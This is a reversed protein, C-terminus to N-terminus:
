DDGLLNAHSLQFAADLDSDDVDLLAAGTAAMAGSEM